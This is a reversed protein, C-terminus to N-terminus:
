CLSTILMSRHTHLCVPACARVKLATLSSWADPLTGALGSNELEIAQPQPVTHHACTLQPASSSCLM